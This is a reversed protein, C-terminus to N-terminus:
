DDLPAILRIQSLVAQGALFLSCLPTTGEGLEGESGERYRVGARTLAFFRVQGAKPLLLDAPASWGDVHEGATVLLAGTAARVAAHEGCGIVGGGDEFYLSTTGDALAVLCVAGRPYGMEMLLGWVEPLEPSAAIGAEVPDLDFLRKRMEM